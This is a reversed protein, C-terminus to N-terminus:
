RELSAHIQICSALQTDVWEIIAEKKAIPICIRKSLPNKDQHVAEATMVLTGDEEVRVTFQVDLRGQKTTSRCSATFQQPTIELIVDGKLVPELSKMKPTLCNLFLSGAL